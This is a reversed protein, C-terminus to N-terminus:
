SSRGRAGAPRGRAVACRPACRWLWHACALRESSAQVGGGRARRRRASGLVAADLRLCVLVRAAGKFLWASRRSDVRLAGALYPLESALHPVRTTDSRWPKGPRKSGRALRAWGAGALHLRGALRRLLAIRRPLWHVCALREGSTRRGRGAGDSAAGVGGCGRESRRWGACADRSDAICRARRPLLHVCALREGSAQVGGGRATRRRASGLVAAGCHLCVWVRAAGKVLRASSCFGVRLAHSHTSCEEETRKPAVDSTAPM